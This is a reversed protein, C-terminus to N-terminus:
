ALVGAHLYQLGDHQRGVLIGALAHVHSAGDLEDHLLLLDGDAAARVPLTHHTAQARALRGDAPDCVYLQPLGRLLGLRNTWIDFPERM